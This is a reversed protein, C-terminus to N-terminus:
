INRLRYPVGFFLEDAIIQEIALRNQHTGYSIVIDAKGPCTTTDIEVFVFGPNVQKIKDITDRHSDVVQEVEAVSPLEACSLFHDQNDLVLDNYLAKIANPRFWALGLGSCVLVLIVIVSFATLRKKTM